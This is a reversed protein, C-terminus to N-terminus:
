VIDAEPDTIDAPNAAGNESDFDADELTEPDLAARDLRCLLRQQCYRCTTPYSKPSVSTEGSHFAEALRTLIEDWQQVQAKLSDAKLKAPKPLIGAQAQYGHLSMAKGPRLNAFAVGALDPIKSVVAYLPLQPADPREGLWDTPKAQGTKYDIIIEGIPEEPEGEPHAIDTRDVRINLRLPGIPVDKLSEERAKVTFPIRTNAEYDLWPKLLNLLRERETDLYASSWGLDPRPNNATLAVAICSELVANREAITMQKLTAQSQVQEWFQQMVDHVVSGRESPSLGLSNSELATSFLRKESFARFGCEAQAKLIGAGGRFVRDPPLPIPADDLFEEIELAAETTDAPAIDSATSNSPSLRTVVPSPRQHGDAAELAYSFLVVPASTAIRGTIRRALDTDADLDAGPMARDRQLQWPLLPNPSPTL